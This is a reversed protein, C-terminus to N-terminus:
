SNGHKDKNFDLYEISFFNSYPQLTLPTDNEDVAKFCMKDWRRCDRENYWFTTISQIIDWLKFNVNVSCSGSVHGEPCSGSISWTFTKSFEGIVDYVAIPIWQSPYTGDDNIPYYDCYAYVQKTQPQTLVQTKFVIRYRGDEKIIAGLQGYTNDTEVYPWEEDVSITWPAQTNPPEFSVKFRNKYKIEVSRERNGIILTAGRKWPYKKDSDILTDRLSIFQDYV